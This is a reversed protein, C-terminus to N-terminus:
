HAGPNAQACREAPQEMGGVSVGGHDLKRSKAGDVAGAPMSKLGLLTLGVVSISETHCGSVNVSELYLFCMNLGGRGVYSRLRSGMWEWLCCLRGWSPFSPRAMLQDLTKKVLSVQKEAKAFQPLESVAQFDQTFAPAQPDLAAAGWAVSMRQSSMEQTGSLSAEM